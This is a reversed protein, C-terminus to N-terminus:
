FSDAIAARLEQSMPQSVSKLEAHTQPQSGFAAALDAPAEALIEVSDGVQVRSFLDEVDRKGMRICGHSAAYGISHPENTGHIGYGKRDLGMWRNGLPNGRGPGIVVGKHYYTPKVIRNVIKFHGAPSPTTAKGVAVAYVKVVEGDEILALKRDALSIVLENRPTAVDPEASPDSSKPLDKAAANSLTFLIVAFSIAQKIRTGLEFRQEVAKFETRRM